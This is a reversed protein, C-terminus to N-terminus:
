AEKNTEKEAVARYLFTVVQGRTCTDNPAFTTSTTGKTVGAEVAWAVARAYFANAEVDDFGSEDSAPAPNGKFRWLFTVIQGRTCTVDPAFTTETTGKTIGQEVAWAVARAYFAKSDVDTFATTENVPEPCGAARWLFTVVQARTCGEYPGFHTVSIGKTIQPDANYAWYVPDFSFAEENKVDEFRFPTEDPKAALAEIAANIAQAAADVTTQDADDALDGAASVAAEEM